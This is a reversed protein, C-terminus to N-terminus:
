RILANYYVSVGDSMMFHVGIGNTEFMVKKKFDLINAPCCVNGDGTEGYFAQFTASSACSSDTLKFDNEEKLTLGFGKFYWKKRWFIYESFGGPGACVDAFYFPGGYHVQFSM